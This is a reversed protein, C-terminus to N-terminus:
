LGRRARHDRRELRTAGGWRMRAPDQYNAFSFHHKVDLWGRRAHGLTTLPRREIM